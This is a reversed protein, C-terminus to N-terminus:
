PAAGCGLAIGCVVGGGGAVGRGSRLIEDNRGWVVLTPLAVEQIRSSLAYGGSQMFAVNADTWGPLNTHLRGVRMADDTSYLRKNHYAM